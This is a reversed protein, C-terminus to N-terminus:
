FKLYGLKGLVKAFDIYTMYVRKGGTASSLMEIFGGSPENNIVTSIKQLDKISLVHDRLKVNPFQRDRGANKVLLGWLNDIIDANDMFILLEYTSRVIKDFDIVDTGEVILDEERVLKWLDKPLQLDGFYLPLDRITMDHDISYNAFVGLIEDEVVQPIKGKTFKEVRDITVKNNEKSM